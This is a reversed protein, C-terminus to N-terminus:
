HCINEATCRNANFGLNALVINEISQQLVPTAFTQVHFCLIM